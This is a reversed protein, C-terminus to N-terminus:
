KVTTSNNKTNLYQLLDYIFGQPESNKNLSFYPYAANQTNVYVQSNQAILNGINIFCILLILLFKIGIQKIVM